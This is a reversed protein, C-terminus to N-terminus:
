RNDCPNLPSALDLCKNALGPTPTLVDDALIIVSPDYSIHENGEDTQTFKNCVRSEGDSFGSSSTEVESYEEMNSKPRPHAPKLDCSCTTCRQCKMNIGEQPAGTTTVMLSMPGSLADIGSHILDESNILNNVEQEASHNEQDLQKQQQQNQFHQQERAQLLAEYKEILIRYQTDLEFLLSNQPADSIDTGPSTGCSGVRSVVRGMSALSEQFM